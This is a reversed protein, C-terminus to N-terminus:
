IKPDETEDDSSPADDDENCCREILGTVKSQLLQLLPRLLLYDTVGGLGLPPLDRYVFVPFVSSPPVGLDCITAINKNVIESDLILTPNEVLVPDVVDIMTLLVVPTIGLSQLIQLYEKMCKKELANDLQNAPFVMFCGHIGQNFKTKSAQQIKEAETLQRKDGMKSKAALLGTRLLELDKKYEADVIGDESIFWGWFDLFNFRYPKHPKVLQVETTLTKPSDGPIAVEVFKGNLVANFSNVLSSKGSGRVGVLGLNVCSRKQLVKLDGATAGGLFDKLYRVPIRWGKLVEKSKTIAAKLLLDDKLVASEPHELPLQLELITSAIEPSGIGSGDTFHAVARLRLVKGPEFGALTVPWPQGDPYGLPVVEKADIPDWFGGKSGIEWKYFQYYDAKQAAVIEIDVRRPWVRKPELLPRGEFRKLASVTFFRQLDALRQVTV